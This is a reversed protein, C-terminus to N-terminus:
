ASDLDPTQFEMQGVFTPQYDFVEWQRLRRGGSAAGDNQQAGLEAVTPPMTKEVVSEGKQFCTLPHVRFMVAIRLTAM